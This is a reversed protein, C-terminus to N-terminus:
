LMICVSSYFFFLTRHIYQAYRFWYYCGPFQRVWRRTHSSIWSLTSATHVLLKRYVVPPVKAIAILEVTCNHRYRSDSPRILLKFDKTYPLGVSKKATMRVGRLQVCVCLCRPITKTDTFFLFFRQLVIYSRQGVHRATTFIVSRRSFLKLMTQDFSRTYVCVYTIRRTAKHIFFPSNNASNESCGVKISQVNSSAACVCVDRPSNLLHIKSAIM